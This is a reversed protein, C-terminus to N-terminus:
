MQPHKDLQDSSRRPCCHEWVTGLQSKGFYSRLFSYLRSYVMGRRYVLFSKIGVQSQETCLEEDEKSIDSNFVYQSFKEGLSTGPTM